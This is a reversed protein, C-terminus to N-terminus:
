CRKLLEVWHMERKWATTFNQLNKVSKEGCIKARETINDYIKKLNTKQKITNM